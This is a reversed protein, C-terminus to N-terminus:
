LTSAPVSFRGVAVGIVLSAAIASALTWWQNTLRRRPRAFTAAEIGAWMEESRPVPPVRWTRSADRLLENLKEDNM